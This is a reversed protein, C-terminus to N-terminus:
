INVVHVYQCLSPEPFIFSYFEAWTLKKLIKNESNLIKNKRTTNTELGTDTM